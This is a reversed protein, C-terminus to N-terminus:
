AGRCVCRCPSFSSVTGLCQGVERQGSSGGAKVEERCALSM